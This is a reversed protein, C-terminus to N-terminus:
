NQSFRRGMWLIRKYQAGVKKLDRFLGADHYTMSFNSRCGLKAQDAAISTTNNKRWLM